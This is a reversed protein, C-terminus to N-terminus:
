ATKLKRFVLYYIRRLLPRVKGYLFIMWGMWTDGFSLLGKAKGIRIIANVRNFPLYRAASILYLRLLNSYENSAEAFATTLYHSIEAYEGRFLRQGTQTLQNGHIRGKVLKDPICKMSCGGLFLKYWMFYDQCFRLSEDFCGVTEFVAKPILLACGHLSARKLLVELIETGSYIKYPTFCSKIRNTTIPQSYEDIQSYDCYIITQSDCGELAEVQKAVKNPEYVDDHSLWSFYTGRMNRIGMNLASSVGGNPKSFYRIRDGYSNAIEETQGNDKSGDNVVIVELNHYTQALASDIAERMYNAGNYVPIIISVLPEIM